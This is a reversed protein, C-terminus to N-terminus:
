CMVRVEVAFEAADHPALLSAEGRELGTALGQSTPVTAPELGLCSVQELPAGAGGREEWFWLYPLTESWHVEIAHDLNPSAVRARRAPIASVSGFRSSPSEAGRSWDEVRGDLNAFPWATGTSGPLLSGDDALPQLTAGPMEISSGARALPEGFILHEVLVFPLEVPRTNRVATQVRLRAEDLAFSRHVALGGADTWSLEARDTEAREVRWWALSAAGHFGHRRGAAECAEGANPFLLQWGGRWVGTWAVEDAEGAPPEARKWPAQFLLEPGGAPQLSRVEAGFGPDIVVELQGNALRLVQAYQRVKASTITITVPASSTARATANRAESLAACMVPTARLISPPSARM